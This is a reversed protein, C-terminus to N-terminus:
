GISSKKVLRLHRVGNLIFEVQYRDYIDLYANHYETEVLMQKPTMKGHIEFFDREALESSLFEEMCDDTFEEILLDCEETQDFSVTYTLEGPLQAKEFAGCGPAERYGTSYIKLMLDDVVPQDQFDNNMLIANAMYLLKGLDKLEDLTFEVTIEEM